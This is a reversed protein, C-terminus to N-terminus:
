SDESDGDVLIVWDEGWSESVREGDRLLSGVG